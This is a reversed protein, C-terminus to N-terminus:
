MKFEKQGTPCPSQLTKNSEHSKWQGTGDSM